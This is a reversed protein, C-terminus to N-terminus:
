QHAGTCQNSLASLVVEVTPWIAIRRSPYSGYEPLSGAGSCGDPCGNIRFLGSLGPEANDPKKAQDRIITRHLLGFPQILTV